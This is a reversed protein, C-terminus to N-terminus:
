HQTSLQSADGHDNPAPYQPYGKQRVESSQAILPTKSRFLQQTRDYSHDNHGQAKQQHSFDGLGVWIGGTGGM